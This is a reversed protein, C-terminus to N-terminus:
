DYAQIFKLNDNTSHNYGNIGARWNYIYHDM